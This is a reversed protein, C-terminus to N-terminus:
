RHAVEARAVRYFEYGVAGPARQGMVLPRYDAAGLDELLRLGREMLFPGLEEPRWGFTWIEGSERLTGFLPEIGPAAFRGDLVDAHVYTVIIRSGPVATRSMFCLVGDVAAADLYNTVGEWLFLTRRGADFGAEALRRALDDQRFDVPVYVVDPRVPRGGGELLRRKRELLAPQDVEFVTLRALAPLRHARCDYGAGLLVIQQAGDRVAATAWDDILRTRAIGSSRVGPWRKDIYHELRRGLMPVRAAASLVRLRPALFDRAYPDQFLREGRPRATELARFLAMYQATRSVPM